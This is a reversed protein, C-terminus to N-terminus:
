REKRILALIAEVGVAAEAAKLAVYAEAEEDEARELRRQASRLADRALSMPSTTESM